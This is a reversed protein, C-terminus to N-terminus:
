CYGQYRREVARLRDAEAVAEAVADEWRPFDDRRQVLGPRVVTGSRDVLWRGTSRDLHVTVKM